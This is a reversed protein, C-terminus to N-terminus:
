EIISLSHTSTSGMRQLILTRCPQYARSVNLLTFCDGGAILTNDDFRNRFKHELTATIGVEWSFRKNIANKGNQKM